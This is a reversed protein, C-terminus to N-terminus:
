GLFGNLLTCSIAIITLKVRLNSYWTSKLFIKMDIFLAAVFGLTLFLSPIYFNKFVVIIILSIWALLSTFIGWFWLFSESKEYKLLFGWHVAGLFSLIISAYLLGIIKMEYVYQNNIIVLFSSFVFPIVGLWGLIIPNFIFNSKLRM